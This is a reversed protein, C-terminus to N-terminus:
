ALTHPQPVAGAEYARLLARVREESVQGQPVDDPSLGDGPM